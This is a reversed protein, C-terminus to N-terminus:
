RVEFNVKEIVKGSKSILALQYKGIVPKWKISKKGVELLKDNLYWKLDATIDHGTFFLYESESPIDPDHAVVMGDTPYTIRPFFVKPPTIPNSNVMEKLFYNDKIKVIGNPVQLGALFDTPISNSHSSHSHLSNTYSSSHLYRMIQAYIPAAGTVGSVNWMPNGAMNGVWVAVTYDASYGACWNDRMDKSTGTKVPYNGPIKLVSHAGFTLTRNDNNSLIASLIFSTEPSFIQQGEYSGKNALSHYAWALDWLSIDIAGLALSPGYYDNSQLKTFGLKKLLDLFSPVGILQLVRVAPTNLSSALAVKLPVKGWFFKDYNQPTYDGGTVPIAIPSDDLISDMNLLKKEIALGYLFPKLISGAQRYAMVGDVSPSSAFQGINAAYARVEGTPNHIIIASADNVNRGSLAKIQQQLTLMLMKQLDLDLTTLIKSDNPSISGTKLDRNNLSELDQLNHESIKKVIKQLKPSLKEGEEFVAPLLNDVKRYIENDLSHYSSDLVSKTWTELENDVRLKPALTPMKKRILERANKMRILVKQISANPSRILISLLIAEDINLSKPEKHFLHRSSAYIGQLEGRFYIYNFYSELIENKNLKNELKLAYKLQCIKKSFSVPFISASISTLNSALPASAPSGHRGRFCYCGQLCTKSKLKFIINALQMTITSAGGRYSLPLIQSLTAALLSQWDIGLHNFFHKDESLLVIPIFFDPLENLEVWRGRRVKFDTRVEKLVRGKNDLYIIDSPHYNSKVEQFSPVKTISDDGNGSILTIFATAIVAVIATILIFIFIVASLYIKKFKLPFKLSKM